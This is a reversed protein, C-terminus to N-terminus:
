PRKVHQRLCQLYAAEDPLTGHRQSQWMMEALCEMMQHEVEHADGQIRLLEQHCETIGDPRQTALQEQIAIHMAMHLFPNTQGMEPAYDKDLNAAEDELLAHYEPHQQVISAILQELPDLPQQALYKHWAAFFLHRLQARDQGFM